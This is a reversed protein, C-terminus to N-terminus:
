AQSFAHSETGPLMEADTEAETEEKKGKRKFSLLRGRHHVSPCNKRFFPQPNDTAKRKNTQEKKEEKEAKFCM